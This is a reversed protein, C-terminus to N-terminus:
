RGDTVCLCNGVFWDGLRIDKWTDYPVNFWNKKEVGNVTDKIFVVFVQCHTKTLGKCDASSFDKRFVEGSQIGTAQQFSPVVGILCIAFLVIVIIILLTAGSRDEKEIFM